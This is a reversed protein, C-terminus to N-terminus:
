VDGSIYECGAASPNMFFRSLFGFSSFNLNRFVNAQEGEKSMRSSLWHIHAISDTIHKEERQSPLSIYISSKTKGIHRLSFSPLMVADYVDICKWDNYLLINLPGHAIKIKTIANNVYGFGNMGGLCLLNFALECNIINRNSVRNKELCIVKPVM